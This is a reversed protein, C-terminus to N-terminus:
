LLVKLVEDNIEFPLKPIPVLKGDALTVISPPEKDESALLVPYKNIPSGNCFCKNISSL